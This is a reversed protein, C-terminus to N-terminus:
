SHSITRARESCSLFISFIRFHFCWNNMIPNCRRKFVEHIWIVPNGMDNSPFFFNRKLGQSTSIVHYFLKVQLKAVVRCQSGLFTRRQKKEETLLCSPYCPGKRDTPQIYFLVFSICPYILVSPFRKQNRFFITTIPTQIQILASPPAKPTSRTM